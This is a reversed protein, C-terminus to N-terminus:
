KMYAVFSHHTKQKDLPPDERWQGYLGTLYQDYNKPASYQGGEFTVSIQEEFLKKEFAEGVGYFGWTVNGYLKAKQNKTAERIMMRCFRKAGVIKFPLSCGWKLISILITKSKYNRLKSSNLARRLKEFHKYKKKIQEATDGYGDIPFVDINVGFISDLACSEVLKTRQDSLKAFPFLFDENNEFSFLAYKGNPDRYERILRDYDERLLCVDIDDDWPIYGQYKVAGLLSGNCLYYQIGNAKCFSDLNNLIDLQVAKVEDLSMQRM